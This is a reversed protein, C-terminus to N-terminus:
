IYRDTLIHTHTHTNTHIRTERGRQMKGEREGERGREREREKESETEKELEVGLLDGKSQGHLNFLPSIFAQYGKARGGGGKVSWLYFCPAM